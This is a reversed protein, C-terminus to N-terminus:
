QYKLHRLINIFDQRQYSGINSWSDFKAGATISILKHNNQEFFVMWCLGAKETTGSKGGLVTFGEIEKDMKSSVSSKIELEKGEIKLDKSRTTFIKRFTPKKLSYQILKLLDQLSTQQKIHDFGVPNVFNTQDMGLEKAKKNMLDVFNQGTKQATFDALAVTAEGGSALLSGYLLNEVSIQQKPLFGAMAANERKMQDYVAQSITVPQQLDDIQDIVVTATMVKVLSAPYISQKDNMQYVIRKDTLDYVLVNKSFFSTPNLHYKAPKIKAREARAVAVQEQHNTKEIVLFTIFAAEILLFIVLCFNILSNLRKNQM